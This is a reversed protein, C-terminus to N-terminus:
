SRHVKGTQGLQVCDGNFQDEACRRSRSGCAWRYMVALGKHNIVLKGGRNNIKGGVSGDVIVKAGPEITLNGLLNGRVHLFCNMEVITDNVISSCTDLSSSVLLLEEGAEHASLM